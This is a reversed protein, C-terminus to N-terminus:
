DDGGAECKLFGFGDAHGIVTGAELDSQQVICYQEKRNFLLEGTRLLEALQRSLAKKSRKSAVALGRSIALWDQPTQQEKLYCLLQKKSIPSEQDTADVKSRSKRTTIIPRKKSM